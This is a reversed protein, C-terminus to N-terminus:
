ESSPSPFKGSAAIAALGELALGLGQYRLLTEKLPQTFVLRTYRLVLDSKEALQRAIQWARALV